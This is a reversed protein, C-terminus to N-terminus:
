VAGKGGFMRKWEAKEAVWVYGLFGIFMVFNVVYKMAVSAEERVWYAVFLLMSIVTVDKVISAM